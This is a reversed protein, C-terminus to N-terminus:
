LSLELTHWETFWAGMHSAHVVGVLCCSMRTGFMCTIYGVSMLYFLCSEETKMFELSAEIKSGSKPPM